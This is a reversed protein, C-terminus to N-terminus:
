ETHVRLSEVSKDLFKKTLFVQERSSLAFRTVCTATTHDRKAPIVDQGTKGSVRCHQLSKM